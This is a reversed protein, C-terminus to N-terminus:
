RPRGWWHNPPPNPPRAQSSPPPNVPLVRAYAAQNQPIPRNLFRPKSHNRTTRRQQPPQNPNNHHSHNLEQDIIEADLDDILAPDYCKHKALDDLLLEILRRCLESGMCKRYVLRWLDCDSGSYTLLWAFPWDVVWEVPNRQIM